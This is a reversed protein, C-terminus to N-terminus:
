LDERLWGAIREAVMITPLNTNASPIDPMVSADAVWLGEIGHVRGRADVVAGAHPDPGMRCTGVPHHYTGFTARIGRELGAPDDDAVGPAPKLEAGAVLESLPATRLLARAAVVGEIALAMDHPHRLHAPDIRPANLPDPSRLRVRGRSRPKLVSVGVFFLSGSPSQTEPVRMASCPVLHLDPAGAPDAASAVTSRFTVAVQALPAPPTDPAGPVDVSIWPHDILNSGVGPLDRVPPIGAESLEDAPGLGSRLLIAPSQYAGAALVVAASGITERTQALRIGIARTGDFLVRDVLVGSRITLNSRGRAPGLFALAASV